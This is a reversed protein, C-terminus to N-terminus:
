TLQVLFGSPQFGSVDVRCLIVLVIVIVVV